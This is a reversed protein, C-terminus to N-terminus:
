NKWRAWRFFNEVLIDAKDALSLFIEKGRPSQLDITVGKKGRTLSLFYLSVGRVVPGSGRAIDGTGPREVKIVEAGMDSLLMTAFPGFLLQTLDLVKIGSLPGTM